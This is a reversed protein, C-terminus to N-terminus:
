QGGKKKRPRTRRPPSAAERDFQRFAERVREPNVQAYRMTTRISKHGMLDRLVFADMTWAREGGFTHRLQHITM